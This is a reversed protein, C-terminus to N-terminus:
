PDVRLLVIILYVFLMITVARKFILHCLNNVPTEGHSGQINLDYNENEVNQLDKMM